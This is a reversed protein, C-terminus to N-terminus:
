HFAFFTLWLEDVLQSRVAFMSGWAVAFKYGKFDVEPSSIGLYFRNPIPIDLEDNEYWARKNSENSTATTNSTSASPTTPPLATCWATAVLASLGLILKM